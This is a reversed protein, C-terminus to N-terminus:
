NVIRQSLLEDYVLVDRNAKGAKISKRVRNLLHSLHKTANRARTTTMAKCEPTSGTVTIGFRLNQDEYDFLVFQPYESDTFLRKPVRSGIIRGDATVNDEERVAMKLADCMAQVTTSESHLIFVDTGRSLHLSFGKLMREFDSFSKIGVVITQFFSEFDRLESVVDEPSKANSLLLPPLADVAALLVDRLLDEQSCSRLAAWRALDPLTPVNRPLNSFTSGILEAVNGTSRYQPPSIDLDIKQFEGSGDLWGIEWDDDRYELLEKVTAISRRITDTITTAFGNKVLFDIQRDADPTRCVDVTTITKGRLSPHASALGDVSFRVTTGEESRLFLDRESQISWVKFIIYLCRRVADSTTAAFRKSLGDLRCRDTPTVCFRLRSHTSSTKPM